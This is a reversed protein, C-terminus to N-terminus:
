FSEVVKFGASVRCHGGSLAISSVMSWCSIFFFLTYIDSVNCSSQINQHEQQIETSSKEDTGVESFSSVVDEQSEKIWQRM